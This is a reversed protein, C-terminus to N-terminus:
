RVIPSAIKLLRTVRNVRGKCEKVQLDLFHQKGPFFDRVQEQSNPPPTETNRALQSAMELERLKSPAPPQPQAQRLPAALASLVLQSAGVVVVRIEEGSM